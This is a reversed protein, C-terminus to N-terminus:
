WYRGFVRSARETLAASAPICLEQRAPKWFNPLSYRRLVMAPQLCVTETNRRAEFMMSNPGFIQPIISTGLSKRKAGIQKKCGSSSTTLLKQGPLRWNLAQMGHAGTRRISAPATQHQIDSPQMSLGIHLFELSWNGPM